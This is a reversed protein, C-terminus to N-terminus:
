EETETEKGEEEDDGEQPWPGCSIDRKENFCWSGNGNELPGGYKRGVGKGICADAKPGSIQRSYCAGQFCFPRRWVTDPENFAKSTWGKNCDCLGGNHSLGWKGSRSGAKCSKPPLPEDPKDGEKDADGANTKDDDGTSAEDETAAEEEEGDGLDADADAVDTEDKVADSQRDM